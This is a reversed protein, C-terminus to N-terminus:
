RIVSVILVGFMLVFAILFVLMVKGFATYDEDHM